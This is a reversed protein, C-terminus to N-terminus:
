IDGREDREIGEDLALLPLDEKDGHTPMTYDTPTNCMESAHDESECRRCTGPHTGSPHTEVGGTLHDGDEILQHLERDLALSEPTCGELLEEIAKVIPNSGDSNPGNQVIRTHHDHGIKEDSLCLIVLGYPDPEATIRVDEQELFSLKDAYKDNVGTIHGAVERGYPRVFQTIPFDM